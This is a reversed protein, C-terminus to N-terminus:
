SRASDVLLRSDDTIEKLVSLNWICGSSCDWRSHWPLPADFYREYPNVIIGDADKAVRPWDVAPEFWLPHESHGYKAQYVKQFQLLDHTNEIIIVNSKDILEFKKPNELTPWHFEDKCFEPWGYEAEDVSVWLGSPKRLFHPNPQLYPYDPNLDFPDNSYHTLRM